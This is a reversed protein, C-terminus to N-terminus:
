SAPTIHGVTMSSKWSGILFPWAVANKGHNPVLLFHVLRSTPLIYRGGTADQMAIDAKATFSLTLRDVGAARDLGLTVRGYTRNSVLTGSPVPAIGKPGTVGFFIAGQLTRIAAKDHKEVKTFAATFTAACQPTMPALVADFDSRRVSDVHTRILTPNWGNAFTYALVAQYIAQVRDQGYEAVAPGTLTGTDGASRPSVSGTRSPGSSIPNATASRGGYVQCSTVPGLLLVGLLTATVMRYPHRMMTAM